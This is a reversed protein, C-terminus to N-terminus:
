CPWNYSCSKGESHEKELRFGWGVALCQYLQEVAVSYETVLHQDVLYEVIPHESVLYEVESYETVLPQYILHGAVLHELLHELVLWPLPAM